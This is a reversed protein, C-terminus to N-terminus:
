RGSRVAALETEVTTLLKRNGANKEAWANILDRYITQAAQVDSASPVVVHRTPDSKARELIQREGAGYDRIWLAAAREGSHKVIISKAADPLRAFTKRNMLLLLPAAGGELLFHQKAVNNIGFEILGNPALTAGDIAGSEIAAAVRPAELVMSKAGLRELAEAETANNARIKMGRLAALSQVPKRAHLLTPGTTYAGIVFYDQYGRLANAAVLRTYVLTGDRVDHFLGPLELVENDPFRYPTQGPIVFAIDAVGELLLRPQEAISRSFTGGAHVEIAVVDKGEANVADVFPKIGYLWTNASESGYFALKLKIPEAAAGLPLLLAFIMPALRSTMRALPQMAAKAAIRTTGVM